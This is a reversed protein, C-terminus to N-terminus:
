EKLGLKFYKNANQFMVMKNLKDTKNYYDPVYYEKDGFTDFGAIPADTGFFIKHEIGMEKAKEVTSYKVWSTDGYINDFNKIANLANENNSLIGMHGLIFDVNPFKKASEEVFAIDSIGNDHTHVIIPLHYKGAFELVTDYKGSNLTTNAIDPHIKLGKVVDRHSLYQKELADVDMEPNCSLMVGLKDSYPAIENIMKENGDIADFFLADISSVLCYTINYKEMSELLVNLRMDFKGEVFGLHTHVDIIM